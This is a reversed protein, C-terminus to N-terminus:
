AQMKRRLLAGCALAAGVLMLTGPEPVSQATVTVDDLQLGGGATEPVTFTFTLQNGSPKVTGLAHYLFYGNFEAVSGDLSFGNTSNLTVGFDTLPTLRPLRLWFDLSSPVSADFMQSLSASGVGSCVFGASGSGGHAFVPNSVPTVFCTGDGTPTFGALGSEFGGNTLPLANALPALAALGIGCIWASFSNPLTKM